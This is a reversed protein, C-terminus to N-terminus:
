RTTQREDERLMPPTFLREIDARRDPWEARTFTTGVLRQEDLLVFHDAVERATELHHCVLVLTRPTAPEDPHLKGIRWDLLLRLVQRASVPDLNSFPEDALVVRPNHVIARLVAMRQKQGGAVEGALRDKVALLTKRPDALELLRTVTETCQRADTGRLALPMAINQACTFHPLLYSSQLVFGFEELRLRARERSSLAAYPCPKDAERHYAISGADLRGEWLLGLLSLLTSKGSGSPGLVATTRGAPITLSVDCLAPTKAGPYSYTVGCLAFSVAM